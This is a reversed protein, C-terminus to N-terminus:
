EAPAMGAQPLHCTFTSGAGPESELAVWGGQIEILAKVLALGLGTAGVGHTAFRDFAHAQIHYPIGRGTDTVEIRVEAAERKATVGVSGGEPTQALANEILYDIAEGLRRSDARIEGVDQDVDSTLDIKRDVAQSAFRDLAKAVMDAVDVNQPDLGLEGADLEAALVATNITRAMQASATQVAQIYGQVPNSFGPANRGLLEAYGIITTMPTRLEYSVTAIFEQRLRQVEALAAERDGLAARLHRENTVDAFSILTAGDPLPRSLWTIVRHDAVTLEGSAPARAVPDLDTVRAKLERWFQLDHIVRLARDRVADFTVDAEAADGAQGWFTDFAQNKLQLRADSGFVAVAVSLKDLTARQVQLLQTFQSKLRLEPTIDSFILIIGGNPHPQSVVRLTRGNSLHWIAEDSPESAEHRALELAKFRAYDQTEPAQGRQRLRDLWDGHSPRESVWAQDLDWLECFAGNSFELRHRADFVAVADKIQHLIAGHAMTLRAQSQSALQASTVDDTWVGVGEGALPTARVRLAVREGWIGTWIVRELERGEAAAQRAMEDIQPDVTRREARATQLDAAGVATLWAQNAWVVSAGATTIWAPLDRSELLSALREGRPLGLRRMPILTLRMWVVAGSTRGAFALAGLDEYVEFDCPEGRSLLADIARAHSPDRLRLADILGQPEGATLGLIDAASRLEEAGYILHTHGGRFMMLASNFAELGTALVDTQRAAQAARQSGHRLGLVLGVVLFVLSCFALAPLILFPQTLSSLLQPSM